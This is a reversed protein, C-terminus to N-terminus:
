LRESPLKGACAANVGIACAYGTLVVVAKELWAEAIDQSM